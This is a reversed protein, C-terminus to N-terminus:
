CFTFMLVVGVLPSCVLVLAVKGAMAREGDDIRLESGVSCAGVALTFTEKPVTLLLQNYQRGLIASVTKM